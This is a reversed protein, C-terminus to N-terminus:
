SSTCLQRSITEIPFIAKVEVRDDYAVLRMQLMDLLERKVAPFQVADSIGKDEANILALVTRHPKDVLRVMSGDENETNWAMSNVKDKWFRLLGQTRELEALRAKQAQIRAFEDNVPRIRASLETDRNKLSEITEELVSKLKNPDNIIEEIRSWVKEELWDAKIISVACKRSGDPHNAKLRGRCSYAKRTPTEQVMFAYGCVGCTILGQLLSPERKQPQLHRNHKRHDNAPQWVANSVIRPVKIKIVDKPMKDMLQSIHTYHNVYQTGIYTPSVIINRISSPRWARSKMSHLPVKEDNLLGAIYSMSKGNSYLQYIRKVVASQGRNIILKKTDKDYDYGYHYGGGGAWCGERYRQLKGSKTREIINEREWESVLGLVQFVTRGIAFSTDISEKISFLAVGCEKLKEELELLLRLSRSLRDLKFVVVKEFLGLKGDAM